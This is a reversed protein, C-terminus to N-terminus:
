RPLIRRAAHRQAVRGAVAQPAVSEINAVKRDRLKTALEPQLINYTGASGCCLHGEPVEMVTFGARRLPRQPETRIKQGHQMSCASHYALRLGGKADPLNQAILFETVDKAKASIAKAKQPSLGCPRIIARIEEAPVKMMDRPNDALAFLAPTIQNVRVDTCQASLLVAILLTYPDRHDLPIPTEPYLASLVEAIRAAREARTM